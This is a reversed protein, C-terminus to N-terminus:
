NEGRFSAISSRVASVGVPIGEMALRVGGGLQSPIPLVPGDGLGEGWGPNTTHYWHDRYVLVSVKRLGGGAPAEHGATGYEMSFLAPEAAGSCSVGFPGGDGGRMAKLPIEVSRGM